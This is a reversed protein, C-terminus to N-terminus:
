WQEPRLWVQYYSSALLRSGGPTDPPMFLKFDLPEPIYKKFINEHCKKLFAIKPLHVLESKKNSLLVPALNVLMQM